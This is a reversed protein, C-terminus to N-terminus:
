RKTQDRARVQVAAIENAYERRADSDINKGQQRCWRTFVDLDVRVRIIEWGQQALRKAVKDARYLWKEYTAPLTDRDDCLRVYEIWDVRDIWFIGAPPRNPATAM